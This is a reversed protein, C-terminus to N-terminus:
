PKSLYAEAEDVISRLRDQFGGQGYDESYRVAKECDSRSLTLQNGQLNSKLRRLLSQYGGEGRVPRELFEMQDSTLRLRLRDPSM